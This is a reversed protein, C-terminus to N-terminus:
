PCPTPTPDPFSPPPWLKSRPSHTRGPLALRAVPESGPPSALGPGRGPPLLSPAHSSRGGPHRLTPQQPSSFLPPCKQAALALLHPARPEPTLSSNSNRRWVLPTVKPLYVRMEGLETEEDAGDKEQPLKPPSPLLERRELFRLRGGGHM